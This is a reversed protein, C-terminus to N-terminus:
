DVLKVSLCRGSGFAVVKVRSSSTRKISPLSSVRVAVPEDLAVNSFM